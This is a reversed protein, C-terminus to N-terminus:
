VYFEEGTDLSVAALHGNFCAGCDIAMHNNGKYVFDAYQNEAISTVVIHGTVLVKNPFYAKSYDPRGFILEHLQYDELPREPSFNSLGAHCLVYEQGNVCVKEYLSFESLYDIVDEKAEQSLKKFGDFTTQGGEQLWSSMSEILDKSLRKISEETIETTLIKLCEMAMFEHNGLIPIVNPRSAMDLLLKIPQPGRDVADGLVYFVDNDKFKIKKLLELYKDYCGHIDACVYLMIGGIM